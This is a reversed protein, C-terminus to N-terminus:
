REGGGSHPAYPACPGAMERKDAYMARDARLYASDLTDEPLVASLGCSVSIFIDRGDARAVPEAALRERFRELVAGAAAEGGMILLMFEDGGWRAITDTERFCEEALRSFGQLVHDGATHGYTDNIDKFGNLDMVALSFPLGGRGMMAHLMAFKMELGRRNDLGTLVDTRAQEELRRQYRNVTLVSVMLVALTVLVGAGVTRVLNERASLLAVQEPQQVVLYWDIEPIYRATLYVNGDDGEYAFDVPANREKLVAAAADPTTVDALGSKMVLSTDPHVQVQGSTDTLFVTRGGLHAFGGFFRALTEMHLGVGTVGITNGEYDRVRYNIFVTLANEAAENTDVDLRMIMPSDLFSYYWGDHEDGRSVTKLVDNFHYYRGTTASVFFTSFFGFEEHIRLLYKRVLEPDREGSLAWDKLFTDNAMVSAVHIPQMLDSHIESFITDRLLPLSSNVIEERIFRRSVQYNVVAIFVFAALMIGSLISVLKAKDSKLVM